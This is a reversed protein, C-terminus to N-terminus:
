VDYKSCEPQFKLRKHESAFTTQNRTHSWNRSRGAEAHESVILFFEIGCKPANIPTETNGQHSSEIQDRSGKISPVRHHPSGSGSDLLDSCAPSTLNGGALKDGKQIQTSYKKKKKLFDVSPNVATLSLTFLVITRNDPTFVCFRSLVATM